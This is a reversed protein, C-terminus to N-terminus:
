LTRKGERAGKGTWECNMCGSLNSSKRYERKVIKEKNM